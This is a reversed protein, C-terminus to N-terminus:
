FPPQLFFRPKSFQPKSFIVGSKQNVKKNRRM